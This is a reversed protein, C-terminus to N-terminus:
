WEEKSHSDGCMADGLAQQVNQISHNVGGTADHDHGRVVRLSQVGRQDAWPADVLNDVEAVHPSPGVPSQKRQVRAKGAHRTDSTLIQATTIRYQSIASDQLPLPQWGLCTEGIPSKPRAAVWYTQGWLNSGISAQIRHM